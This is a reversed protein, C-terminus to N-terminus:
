GLEPIIKDRVFRYINRGEELTKIKSTHYKWGVHDTIRKYLIARKIKGGEWLPDILKHIHRRANRIEKTPINGLPLTPNSEMKHHCGVYNLCQDCKWFPLQYLDQRHPYVEKGSTLRAEVKRNCGCCWIEM